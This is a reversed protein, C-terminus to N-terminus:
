PTATLDQGNTVPSIGLIQRTSGTRGTADTVSAIVTLTTKGAPLELSGGVVWDATARVLGETTLESGAINFLPALNAGAPILNGNPQRLPADFTLVLGPYFRNPGGAPNVAPDPVQSGDLIVGETLGIGHRSRDVASVQIFFLSGDPAVPTGTPGPSVGTPVRPAIMTVEPGDPDDQGDGAVAEPQPTLAQGSTAGNKAVRYGVRDVGVRGSQDVVAVTVAFRDVGPPLSELVHWGAWVTIGSGPTDDTGAVNFLAALNTGKPIIGGDPKVLDTDFFVLLGPFSQNTLGLRSTDRIDTAERVALPVRDRTVVEVNLAFGTGNQSGAGVVGEGPAILSEPVPSVIRVIPGFDEKSLNQAGSKQSNGFPASQAFAPAAQTALGLLMLATCISKIPPM